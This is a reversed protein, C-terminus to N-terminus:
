ADNEVKGNACFILQSFKKSRGNKVLTFSVRLVTDTVKEVNWVTMQCDPVYLPNVGKTESSETKKYLGLKDSKWYYTYYTSWQVTKAVIRPTGTATHSDIHVTDVRYGIEKELFSLTYRGAKYLQVDLLMKQWSGAIQRMGTAFIAMVLAIVLLGIQMELLLSGKQRNSRYWTSFLKKM